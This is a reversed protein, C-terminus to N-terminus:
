VRPMNGDATDADPTQVCANDGQAKSRRVLARKKSRQSSSARKTRHVEHQELTVQALGPVSAQSSRRM